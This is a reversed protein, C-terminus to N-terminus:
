PDGPGSGPESGDLAAGASRAREGLEALARVLFSVRIPSGRWEFFPQPAIIMVRRPVSPSAVPGDTAPTTKMDTTPM